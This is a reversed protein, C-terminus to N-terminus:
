KSNFGRLFPDDDSAGPMSVIGKGRLLNNTMDTVATKLYEELVGIKETAEEANQAQILISLNPPFGKESLIDKVQMDMEKRAYEAARANLESEKAKLTGELKEREYQAKQDANMKALKEAETREEQLIKPLEKETYNKLATEVAKNARRDAEAELEKQTYTKEPKTQQEPQGETQAPTNVTNNIEEPTDVAATNENDM